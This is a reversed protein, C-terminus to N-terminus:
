KLNTKQLIGQQKMLKEIDQVTKPVFSSLNENGEPTILINDEIRIGIGWWKPDCDSGEPIYIGPEVTLVMGPELIGYAGRDHVDLGLHHGIGHPFYPHRQRKTIIGLKELGDDIIKSAAMQVEFFENGNKAKKIGAELAELVIEYIAKEENSFRGNVPVTRTIDGAYGKYEAGVDMLILGKQLNMKSNEVYHLICANSGAGVISGYAPAEAGMIRHIYEHVGQIQYESVGPKISKMAEIHGLGSIRVAERILQVEETTKIARLKGMFRQLSNLSMKEVEPRSNEILLNIMQTLMVNHGNKEPIHLTPHFVESYSNLNLPPTILFQSNSFVHQFGLQNSAAEPGLIKGDWQEKRPDKPAVYLLEDIRLDGFSQPEKFVILASNPERLGTLYYFDSNPRYPFYTDNSRVKEAENFLIAVSNEPMLARLANRRETHFASSLGQEFVSQAFSAQFLILAIILPNNIKM